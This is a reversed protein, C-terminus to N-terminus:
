VEASSRETGSSRSQAGWTLVSEAASRYGTEILESESNYNEVVKRLLLLRSWNEDTSSKGYEIVCDELQKAMEPLLYRSFLANWVVLAESLERNPHVSDCTLYIKEKFLNDISGSLEKKDFEERIDLPLLNPTHAVLNLLVQSIELLKQDYPRIHVFRDVDRELIEPFNIAAAILLVQLKRNTNEKSLGALLFKVNNVSLVVKEKKRRTPRSSQYIEWIKDSLFRMFAIQMGRHEITKLRKRIRDDLESIQEPTSFTKGQTELWWLHESLPRAAAIVEALGGSGHARIYTDPDHESPLIAFKLSHSPTLLPLARNIARAGANLGATDGDFCIILEPGVKWLDSIQEETLATGLPAVATDFGNQHLAIVDMYGETVIPPNSPTASARAIHLAFLTRAKQFILTEASNLYKPQGDRLLRGGFAIVRGGRDCIPFIIRERFFDFTEGGEERQRVLSADIALQDSFTKSLENKLLTRSAPAFGIRFRRITADDLGRKRLYEMADRGLPSHLQRQFFACAAECIDYLTSVHLDRDRQQPSEAPLQLGAEKALSEVTERFGLNGLRMSFGIVDGHAGCGFCHYFGKEEVVNFSPTKENHFPCLGVFDRGKKVLRVRRGVVGALSTRARLEDLFHPSFSM